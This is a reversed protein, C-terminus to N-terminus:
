KESCMTDKNYPPHPVTILHIFKRELVADRTSKPGGAGKKHAVSHRTRFKQIVKWACSKSTGCAKALEGYSMDPHRLFLDLLQTRKILRSDHGAEKMAGCMKWGVASVCSSNMHPIWAFSEMDKSKSTGCAKALEGYSMDPHRLFLDLLQTRKILRSDHGAEKMAGCLDTTTKVRQPKDANLLVKEDMPEIITGM